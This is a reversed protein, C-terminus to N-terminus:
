TGPGPWCRLRFPHRRPARGVATVGAVTGSAGAMPVAVAPLAVAVTVHVAGASPPEGIVPYSTRTTSAGRVDLDTSQQGCGRVCGAQVHGPQDVPGRDPELDLGAVRSSCTGERGEDVATVGAVTGSAGTMPVAVAPLAEAVIVHVAGASPPEGIM